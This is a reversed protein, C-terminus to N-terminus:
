ALLGKYSPQKLQNTDTITAGRQKKTKYWLSVTIFTIVLYLSLMVSLSMAKNEVFIGPLNAMIHAADLMYTLLLNAPWAFWGSLSAALMGALGSIVGLLMALPVMTVVLINAPLGVFSIQGFIHLVFPLTMLEACLSELAVSGVINQHWGGPWRAQVLPSLIMVGYFALFSLYWSLDSWLYVPNLTATIAATFCILSLPGFSRGYYSAAISLVSVIAARVISASAGALLLFVAILSLSFLTSMRKSRNKFLHGCAHLIITLNYGSVAIIHTLGVRQLDSKVEPPLNARQGVLLGMVFPALPEPLATQAGAVFKRRTEAVLTPHHATVDLAAFSMRGQYAGYGPYLKGTTIITDDDFVANVGYGSVQIKGTLKQGNALVVDGAAFSIQKTKGYLADESARVTVTIKKYYLPEYADLKQLYTSGRWWGCVIGLLIALALLRMSKKRRAFVVLLLLLGGYMPNIMYRTHALGLGTLLGLSIAVLFTGARFRHDFANWM